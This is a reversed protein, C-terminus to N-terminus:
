SDALAQELFQLHDTGFYMEADAAPTGKESLFFTPAGFAGRAVAEETNARLAGKAEDGSALEALRTADLGAGDLLKALISADGLNQGQNWFAPFVVHHFTGFVGEHQAAVATRMLNLTNIPFHPNGEFSVGFSKAVRRLAAGGYARKAAVSEFAPSQNGTAKFVGGLLMPRYVLDISSRKAIEAVRHSAVYSYPSGYDFFFELTQPM